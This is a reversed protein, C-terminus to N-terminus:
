ESRSLHARLGSIDDGTCVSVGAKQLPTHTLLFAGAVFTSFMAEENRCLFATGTCCRKAYRRLFAVPDFSMKAAKDKRDIEEPARPM